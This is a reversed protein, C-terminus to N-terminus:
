NALLLSGTRWRNAGALALACVGDDNMGEPAGYRVGGPRYEYQFSELEEKLWPESFKFRGEQIAMALGEMLHQKSRSTFLYANAAVNHKHLEPLVVDGVGTSDVFARRSGVISAIKSYQQPWPVGTWRLTRSNGYDDIGAVATYDQKRALDIGYLGSMHDFAAAATPDFAAEIARIDFPCAGDDTPEALYLERFVAPPLESQASEIERIDLVGAEVADYATLKHYDVSPDGAASRQKVQQGLKYAWNRRGRVNGVFRLPGRTATTTSRVAPWAENKCRSAEDIVVSSYDPGYIHDPRDSGRFYWISDNPFRITLDSRNFDLLRAQNATAFWRLVRQFAVQKVQQFTPGVWLHACGPAESILQHIQWTLAGVTKGAKTSAEICVLRAAGFFAERQKPYLKDTFRITIKAV